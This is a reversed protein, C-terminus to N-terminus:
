RPLRPASEGNGNCGTQKLRRAHNFNTAWCGEGRGGLERARTEQTTFSGDAVLETVLRRRPNEPALPLVEMWDMGARKLEAARLYLRM